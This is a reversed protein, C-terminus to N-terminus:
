REDAVSREGGINLLKKSQDVIRKRRAEYFEIFGTLESPISGLMHREFYAQRADNNIFATEAWTHPLKDQKSQNIPGELLQLNPLRNYADMLTEIDQQQIGARRLKTASFSNAPFVHDIHFSNKMDMGPYLLSLFSFVRRDNIHMTSLADLEELDFRLSRGRKNLEAELEAVPFKGQGYENVVSRLTVILTDLGSGWINGKLISRSVWERISQRDAAHSHHTLYSESYGNIKLYHAIPLVTSDAPLTRDSFGFDALLRTSLRLSDAVQEWNQEIITMNASNFNTVRFAVSPIDNLMLGAKLVLDKTFGFGDGIANLEDVLGHIVDRADLSKWQAVAISLLLDSYSLPTGGSNVRIFINLVKDLDQSPELFYNIAFDEQVLQRLRTLTEMPFVAGDNLLGHQSIYTFPGMVKEMDIVDSVRFWHEGAESRSKMAEPTLFRFDYQLGMENDEASQDLRLYLFSQPYNSAIHAWSRPRRAAYSGRLGINLATLRQQGDLVGVIPRKSVLDHRNLHKNKLGHYHTMFEYFTYDKSREEKVNWFLFSGIPYGQMLSDFLRVIQDRSWVVERQIAPLLYTNSAVKELAEKITIPTQFAM